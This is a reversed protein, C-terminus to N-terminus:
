AFQKKLEILLRGIGEELLSGRYNLHFDECDRRWYCNEKFINSWYPGLIAFFADDELIAGTQPIFSNM